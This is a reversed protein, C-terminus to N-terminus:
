VRVPLRERATVGRRDVKAAYALAEVGAALAERLLAGYDPDIEDAPAFAECDGRFVWFVMVARNGREVEATLERLHKQGRTTVSDPFMATRDVALTTNKVEVYCPPRTDDELLIDIRSNVGYKVEKRLSGYGALEAIRGKGIAEAVLHNPRATNVGVWTRGVRALEWSYVLKRKGDDHHSLLVQQGDRVVGKMSGSNACHATIVSGDDLEVDALFRKYRRLLTGRHLPPFRM